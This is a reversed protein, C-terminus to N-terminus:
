SRPRNSASSVQGRTAGAARRADGPANDLACALARAAEGRLVEMCARGHPYGLEREAFAWFASLEELVARLKPTSSSCLGPIDHILELLLNGDIDDPELWREAALELLPRLHTPTVGRQVLVLYEPSHEFAALTRDRSEGDDIEHFEEIALENELM